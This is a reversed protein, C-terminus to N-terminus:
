GLASNALKEAQSLQNPLGLVILVDGENLVEEQAPNAIMEGSARKIAIVTVGTEKKIGSDEISRATLPSDKSIAVEEIIMQLDDTHMALELFDLVNPRLVATAMRRGGMVYPSMVRNAGAMRLKDENEEQISRAVIFLQRNLGRASLTIFVNDEDSPAVTILGKAREIGAAKLIKDDSADGEIFPIDQAILKPLQEPNKEIVAHPVGERQLDKVIQQGMRGFGCIIYHDRLKAIHKQMRKRQLAHWISEGVVAEILSTGAWFVIAVGFIILIMTFVKGASDLAQVEKYGVTGLTIITMYLSDLLSWGELIHYGFTGLVALAVLSILALRFQKLSNIEQGM